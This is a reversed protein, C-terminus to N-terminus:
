FGVKDRALNTVVENDAASLTLIAASFHQLLTDFASQLNRYDSFNIVSKYIVYDRVSKVSTAEVEGILSPDVEHVDLLLICIALLVNNGLASIELCRSTFQFARDSEIGTLM